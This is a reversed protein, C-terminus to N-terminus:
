RLGAEKQIIYILEPIGIIGDGNVDAEKYIHSTPLKKSLVQMAIIADSINVVEDNNLDGKLIFTASITHDATVNTFSYSPISGQSRGDVLVDVINYNANPTITFTADSAYDVEVTTPSITGHAGATVTITHPTNLAFTASITHTAVVNTFTHSTVAGASIGDVLVDAVHYNANPTITFATNSGSNVTASLPSITGNTGATATITYTNIAFIAAITHAATVDTFTHSTVAGISTGDVLVDAVHYNVNPTITFTASSGSNVTASLPSITGNTGATATITYTNISFTATMQTGSQSIGTVNVGTDVGMYDRSSPASVPGLVKGPEYYMAADARASYNEIRDLGDAQMLKLLKHPTYSNDYAYDTRAANLSADVHWILMGNTPYGVNADNGSRYRNQAIFFERFPDSSTAGPMILVADQATGSPNLTLTQNGSAVVTPTIWELVWKSFSNHDGWDADMMDLGGIGGDPGVTSDYDYYDPLGLGHGTEHIVAAPSFPGTHVDGNNYEWQWSYKGLKKGDVTYTSDTWETQYAWWFNSWGNDPGTWIVVFYEIQGNGDNDFQSFDVSGDFSAIADKILRESGETTMHIASRNKPCHYWGLTVGSLHLQSYSSREYYNKLSEYPAANSPIGSGDGFLSSDIATQANYAPYDLFDILLAFVKVNGTTPMLKWASPPASLIKNDPLGQQIFAKRQAKYIARDLLDPAIRHNGLGRAKELQEEFKGTQKLREIEGARPPQLAFVTHSLTLSLMLIVYFYLRRKVDTM